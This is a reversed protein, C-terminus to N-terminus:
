FLHKYASIDPNATDYIVKQIIILTLSNVINNVIFDSPKPIDM